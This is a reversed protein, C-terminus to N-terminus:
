RARLKKPDFPFARGLEEDPDARQSRSLVEMLLERHPSARRVYVMVWWADGWADGLRYCTAYECRERLWLMERWFSEAVRARDWHEFLASGRGALTRQVHASTYNPDDEARQSGPAAPPLISFALDPAQQDLYRWLEEISMATRGSLANHNLGIWDLARFRSYWPVQGAGSLLITAHQELGTDALDQGLRSLANLRSVHKPWWGTAVSRPHALWHVLVPSSPTALLPVVLAGGCLVGAFLGKSRQRLACVGIVLAGAFPALMPFEYRYGGAMEHIARAYSLTVVTAPVLLWFGRRLSESGARAGVALAVVLFVVPALRLAVFRASTDAGPLLAGDSGFIRNAVKVYYPNSLLQGFYSIRWVALAVVCVVLVAGVPALAAISSRLSGRPRRVFALVLLYLLALLAGEPRALVMLVLAGAGLATRPVGLVARDDSAIWAAWAAVLAHVLTFLLTDMGSALHVATDASTSWLFAVCVGALAAALPPARTLASALLGFVLGVGLLAAIGLSRTFALPDLGLELGAAVIWVHLLSSAGSTPEVDSSNYRLGHGESLNRAYTYTIFADDAAGEKEANVVCAMWWAAFCLAFALLAGEIWSSRHEASASM